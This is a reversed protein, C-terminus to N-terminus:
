HVTISRQEHGAGGATLAALDRELSPAEGAPPAGLIGAPAIVVQYMGPRELVQEAVVGLENGACRASMPVAVACRAILGEGRYIRVEQYPAAWIRVREGISASLPRTPEAVEDSRPGGRHVRRSEAPAITVSSRTAIGGDFHDRHSLGRAQVVVLLVCAAALASAVPFWASYWGPREPRVRGERGIRQWVKAQWQPDGTGAGVLRLARVLSGRAEHERRCDLCDDRHPDSQGREVLLIGDRWYHECRM